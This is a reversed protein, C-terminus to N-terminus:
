SEYHGRARMLRIQDHTVRYVLRHEDTVRRSWTDPEGHRLPEPKGIGRFPDRRVDEILDAVRGAIRPNARLWYRMDEWFADETVLDRITRRTLPAGTAPPRGREPL